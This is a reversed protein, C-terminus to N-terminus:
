IWFEMGDWGVLAGSEEVQRREPSAELLMPNTNNIHIYIKHRIPLSRIKKLSGGPGGVPIHAMQSATWQGVGRKAMETEEWFTGDVLLADCRQLQALCIEDIEALDPVFVLVGGTTEDMIRYGVAADDRSGDMYRPLKGPVNFAQYALGSSSGDALQLQGLNKPPLRWELGCYASLVRDLRLGQILCDRVLAPAHICLSAGERLLLLGLTHDLDANTVLVGQISTGRRGAEHEQL